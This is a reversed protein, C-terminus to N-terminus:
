VCGQVAGGSREREEKRKEAKMPKCIIRGATTRRGREGERKKPPSRTWPATECM